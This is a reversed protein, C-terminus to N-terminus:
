WKINRQHCDASTRDFMAEFDSFICAFNRTQQNVRFFWGINNNALLDKLSDHEICCDLFDDLLAKKKENLENFEYM